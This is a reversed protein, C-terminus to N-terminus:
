RKMRYTEYYYINANALEQNISFDGLKMSGDEKHNVCISPMYKTVLGHKKAKIALVSEEAFLFMKEDYPAGELVSIANNSLFLFSGHAAYISMTKKGFLRIFFERIIKNITIGCVLLLKSNHKFGNYILRESVLNEKVIMPNQNKGSAAITKPAIIDAQLISLDSPFNKIVIDPNSIVIYKYYFREVAYKIGFNNGYSYGKNPINLFECNYQDAINEIKKRSKEDYFANVVITRNSVDIKKTSELFDILDKHNRYVLVIFVIDVNEKNM